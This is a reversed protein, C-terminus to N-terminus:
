LSKRQAITSILEPSLRGIVDDNAFREPCNKVSLLRIAAADISTASGVIM